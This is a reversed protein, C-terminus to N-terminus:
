SALNNTTSILRENFGISICFLLTVWLSSSKLSLIWYDGYSQSNQPPLAEISPKIKIIISKTYYNTYKRPWKRNYFWISCQVAALHLIISKWKSFLRLTLPWASTILCGSSAQRIPRELSENFNACAFGWSLVCKKLM